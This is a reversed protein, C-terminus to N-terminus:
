SEKKSREIEWKDIFSIAEEDTLNDFHEYGQSVAYFFDPIGLIVVDDVLKRLHYDMRQGAIPVAVIIKGAKKKRCLAMAAFLTYGTAIGDDTLIVTRGKLKPLTKGKRLMKIRRSIEQEEQEIIANIEDDSVIQGADESIYVSGDEAVAGFAAEPNSPYGLKRTIILSLDANLQHAVYYAIEVGGRPIGLVLLDKDRCGALAVGLKEGADKRDIFM